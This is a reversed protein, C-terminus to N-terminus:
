SQAIQLLKMMQWTDVFIINSKSYLKKAGRGNVCKSNLKSKKVEIIKVEWVQEFAHNIPFM